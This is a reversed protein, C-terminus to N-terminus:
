EPGGRRARDEIVTGDIPHPVVLDDAVEAVKPYLIRVAGVALAAGVLQSIVFAPVSSPATGAFTDSLTRALTAAPNAFSTFWTLFYTAGIYAGVAFPAAASHGSRM